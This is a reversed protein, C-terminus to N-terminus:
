FSYEAGAKYLSHTYENDKFTYVVEGSIVIDETVGWDVTAPIDTAAYDMDIGATHGVELAYTVEGASERFGGYTRVTVKLPEPTITTCRGNEVPKDNEDVATCSPAALNQYSSQLETGVFGGAMASLPSLSAIATAFLTTKLLTRM